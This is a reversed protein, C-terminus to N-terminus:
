IMQLDQLWNSICSIKELKNEIKLQPNSKLLLYKFFNAYITKRDKSGQINESVCTNLLVLDM